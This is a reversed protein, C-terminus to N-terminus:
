INVSQKLELFQFPVHLTCHKHEVVLHGRRSSAGVVLVTEGKLLVPGDASGDEPFSMKMVRTQPYGLKTNGLLGAVANLESEGNVDVELGKGDVFQVNGLLLVAALVRVVDLFPIGLIGLCTKWAQFRSADEAMDQRTDGHKLYKLTAPTCGELNLKSREEPSLGALMQYFIHYNKEGPLPRIVRTQDLFYCHIKTRYLAGDTVQVEIFQGIRSSESNTATKASGLSRLVTFAAALHKFADTEPGGGAVAFLQRLLLMSAHSKGSGSTGSLIIAQPYGTESQQRVAEQVVRNLQASLALGRTSSLTLPNGVDRYPNVCLLIPGVNTYFNSSAFRAQLCKMVADETLPGQMHILDELEAAVTGPQLSRPEAIVTVNGNTNNTPGTTVTRVCPVATATTCTVSQVPCAPTLPAVTVAPPVPLVSTRPPVAPQVCAVNNAVVGVSGKTTPTTAPAGQVHLRNRLTVLETSLSRLRQQLHVAENSSSANYGFVYDFLM